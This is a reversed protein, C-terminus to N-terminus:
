LDEAAAEGRATVSDKRGTASLAKKLAIKEQYEAVWESVANVDVVSLAGLNCSDIPVATVSAPDIARRRLIELKFANLKTWASRRQDM